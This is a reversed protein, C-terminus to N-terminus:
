KRNAELEPCTAAARYSVSRTSLPFLQEGSIDFSVTTPLPRPHHVEGCWAFDILLHEIGPRDTSPM